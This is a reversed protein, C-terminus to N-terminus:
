RSKMNISFTPTFKGNIEETYLSYTHIYKSSILDSVKNILESKMEPDKIKHSKQDVLEPNNFQFVISINDEFIFLYRDNDGDNRNELDKINFDGLGRSTISDRLKRAYNIMSKSAFSIVKISM